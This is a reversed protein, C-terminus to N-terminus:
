TMCLLILWKTTYRSTTTHQICLIQLKEYVYSSPLVDSFCKLLRKAHSFVDLFIQCFEASMRHVAAKGRIIKSHIKSHTLSLKGTRHKSIRDGHTCTGAIWLLPLIDFFGKFFIFSHPQQQQPLSTSKVCLVQADGRDFRLSYIFCMYWKQPQTTFVLTYDYAWFLYLIRCTTLLETM